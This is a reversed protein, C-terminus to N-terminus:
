KEGAFAGDKSIEKLMREDDDFWGNDALDIKWELLICVAIAAKAPDPNAKIKQEISKRLTM